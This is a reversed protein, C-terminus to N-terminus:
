KKKTNPNFLSKISKARATDDRGVYSQTSIISRHGLQDRIEILSAGSNFLLTAFTRRASHFGLLESLPAHVTKVKGNKMEQATGMVKDFGARELLVKLYVCITNPAMRFFHGQKGWNDLIRKAPEPIVVDTKRGTKRMYNPIKHVQEIEDWYVSNCEVDIVENQRMGTYCAFVFMDRVSREYDSFIQVKSFTKVQELTLVPKKLEVADVKYKLVEEEVDVGYEKAVFRAMSKFRNVNSYVTNQAVEKLWKKELEILRDVTFDNISWDPDYDLMKNKTAHFNIKAGNSFKKKTFMRTLVEELSNAKPAKKDRPKLAPTEDEVMGARLRHRMNMYDKVQDLTWKGDFTTVDVMASELERNMVEANAADEMLRGNDFDWEDPHVKYGFYCKYWTGTVLKVKAYVYSRGHKDVRSPTIYFKKSRGESYQNRAEGKKAHGTYNLKDINKNIPM